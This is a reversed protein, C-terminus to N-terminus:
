DFSHNKLYARISILATGHLLSLVLFAKSSHHQLLNKLTRQVAFLDFLSMRLSILGSYENSSSISFSCYTARHHLSGVWKLLGQHHSLNFAFSFPAASSSITLYCWWSLPCSNSCVRPSLLPCLFRAHLSCPIAYLWVFKTVSPCFCIEHILWLNFAKPFSCWM